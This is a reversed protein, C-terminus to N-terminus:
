RTLSNDPPINLIATSSNAPGHARRGAHSRLHPTQAVRLYIWIRDATESSRVVLSSTGQVDEQAKCFVMLNEEPKQRRRLAQPWPSRRERTQGKDDITKMKVPAEAARSNETPRIIVKEM